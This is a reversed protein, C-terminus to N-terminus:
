LLPLRSHPLRCPRCDVRGNDTDIESPLYHVLCVLYWVLPRHRTKVEDVTLRLSKAKGRGAEIPRGLLTEIGDAYENLETEQQEALEVEDAKLEQVRDGENLLAWRFFDKVNERKIDQARAGLFWKSVYYEPNPIKDWCRWFLEKREERELPPPHHASAQLARSRPVYVLLWFGAEVACYTLLCKGAASSPPDAISFACYFISLPTIARVVLISARIFIYEPLSTGIM